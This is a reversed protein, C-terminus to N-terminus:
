LRTPGCCWLVLASERSCYDECQRATLCKKLGSLGTLRIDLLVLHLDDPASRTADDLSGAEFILAGPLANSIVLRLGTRFMAHDDILLLRPATMAAM